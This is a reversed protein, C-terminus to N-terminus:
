TYPTVERLHDFCLSLTPAEEGLVLDEVPEGLYAESELVNMVSLYEM